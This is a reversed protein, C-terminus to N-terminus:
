DFLARGADANDIVHVTFGQKELEAARLEQQKRRPKGPAKFEIIFLVGAKFCWYDPCGNRGEIGMKWCTWGRSRAHRIVPTQVGTIERLM